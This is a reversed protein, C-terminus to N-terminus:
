RLIPCPFKSSSSDGIVSWSWFKVISGFDSLATTLSTINVITCGARTFYLVNVTDRPFRKMWVSEITMERVSVVSCESNETSDSEVRVSEVMEMEPAELDVGVVSSAARKEKEEEKGVREETVNSFM